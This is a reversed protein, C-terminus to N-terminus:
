YDVYENRGESAFCNFCLQILGVDNQVRGLTKLESLQWAHGLLEAIMSDQESELEPDEIRKNLYEKGRRCLSNMMILLDVAQSYIEERDNGHEFLLLFDKLVTQPGSLYYNGLQKVQENMIQITKANITGLGAQVFNGVIKELLELGEIQAAIKKKLASKNIKKPGKEGEAKKKEERQEIKERKELIDAPIEAAEFKKGNIYAFLLGISHKCPFQRSPCTCRFVPTDQNIFDASTIYNSAGSGKCEGFLVTEDNSINLKAFSNKKVLGLGNTVANQNPAISNIFEETIKM